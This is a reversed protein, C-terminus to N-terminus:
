SDHGADFKRGRVWAMLRRGMDYFGGVGVRGSLLTEFEKPDRRMVEASLEDQATTMAREIHDTWERSDLKTSAIDLPPGFRAFAEPTRETWFSYELVLPIIIGRELKSALFGVGPRLELPRRRVDRFEGQATIWIMTKPQTFIAEATRLLTVAGRASGPEVGFFGLRRFIRYKQLEKADIPVYHTHEPFLSSVQIGILPDWWSPHNVVVIVPLDTTTPHWGARSVRM